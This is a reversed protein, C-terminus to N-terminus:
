LKGIASLHFHDNNYEKFAAGTKLVTGTPYNKGEPGMYHKEHSPTAIPTKGMLLKRVSSSVSIM